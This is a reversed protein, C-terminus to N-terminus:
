KVLFETELIKDSFRVTVAQADISELGKLVPTVLNDMNYMTLKASQAGLAYNDLIRSLDQKQETYNAIDDRITQEERSLDAIAGSVLTPDDIDAVPLSTNKLQVLKKQALLLEANKDAIAEDLQQQKNDGDQKYAAAMSIRDSLYKDAWGLFDQARRSLEATKMLTVSHFKKGDALSFQAVVDDSILSRLSDSYADISGKLLQRSTAVLLYDGVFCYGPDVNGRTDLNITTWLHLATIYHIKIHQYEEGHIDAIPNVALRDLLREAAARDSVKVFILMRPFPYAGQMDVDTLYGGMEHGLLPLVDRRINIHLRRELRGKVERVAAAVGPSVELGEKLSQWLQGFDYCGGWHYAIANAPVLSLSEDTSAPCDLVKRMGSPMYKKNLGIMVKYKSVPGPMYSLGWVPFAATQSSLSTFGSFLSLNVFVLGDGSPYANQRVFDFSPDAKLSEQRQQYVDVVDELHGLSQPAVVILDRIRVYAIGMGEKKFFVHNIVRGRYKQRRVNVNDGWHHSLQGLLEAIRTSPTLRLAVFVRYFGDQRYVAVAAEKGLFRKALPNRWLQRLDKQWLELDRVDKPSFNNRNLVDPLDIAAVNKGFDSHVAEHIHEEMHDLRGFVLPNSPLVEEVALGPRQFWIWAGLVSVLLAGLLWSTKNKMEYGLSRGPTPM